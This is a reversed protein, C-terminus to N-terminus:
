SGLEKSGPLFRQLFVAWIIWRGPEWSRDVVCAQLFHLRDGRSLIAGTLHWVVLELCHSTANEYWYMGVLGHVEASNLWGNGVLLCSGVQGEGGGHSMHLVSGMVPFVSSLCIVPSCSPTHFVSSSGSDLFSGWPPCSLLFGLRGGLAWCTCKRYALCWPASFGHHAGLMGLGLLGIELRLLPVLLHVVVMSVISVAQLPVRIYERLHRSLVTFGISM